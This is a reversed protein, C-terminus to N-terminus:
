DRQGLAIGGQVLDGIVQSSDDLDQASGFAFYPGAGALQLEAVLRALDKKTRWARIKTVRKKVELDSSCM